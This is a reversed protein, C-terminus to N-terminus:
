NKRVTRNLASLNLRLILYKNKLPTPNQGIYLDGFLAEFEDARNLDYYHELVSLFLTKGFRRPRIFFPFRSNLAELREIAATKDVYLFNEKRITTFNSLGYPLKM